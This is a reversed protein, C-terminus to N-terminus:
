FRVEDGYYAEPLTESHVRSQNREWWAFDAIREDGFLPQEPPLTKMKFNGLNNVAEYKRIWGRGQQSVGCATTTIRLSM